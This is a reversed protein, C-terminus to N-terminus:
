GHSYGISDYYDCEKKELGAKGSCAPTDLRMEWPAGPATPRWEPLGLGNPSGTKAFQTWYGMVSKALVEEEATPKFGALTASDFVFPLESAHCVYGDCFTYNPGWAGNFSLAHDFRYQYVPSSANAGGHEGM